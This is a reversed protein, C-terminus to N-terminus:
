GTVMRKLVDPMVDALKPAPEARAREVSRSGGGERPFPADEGVWRRVCLCSGGNAGCGASTEDWCTYEILGRRIQRTM